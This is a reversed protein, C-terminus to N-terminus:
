QRDGAAAMRVLLCSTLAGSAGGSHKRYGPQYYRDEIEVVEVRREDVWLRVPREDATYGSYTEVRVAPTM